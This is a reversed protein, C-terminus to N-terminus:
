VHQEGGKKNQKIMWRIFLVINVLAFFALLYFPQLNTEGDEITWAISWVTSVCLSFLGFIKMGTDYTDIFFQKM